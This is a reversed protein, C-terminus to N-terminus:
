HETNGSAKRRARSAAVLLGIFGIVLLIAAGTWLERTSLLEATEDIIDQGDPNDSNIELVVGNAAVAAIDTRGLQFPKEIVPTRAAISHFVVGNQGATRAVELLAVGNLGTIDLLPRDASALVLRTDEVRVKAHEQKVAVDFALFAASPQLANGKAVVQFRAHSPMVGVSEAVRILTPLSAGPADLYHAPVAVEAGAIFQPHMGSFSAEPDAKKLVIHSSPLVNVPYAEPTEKCQDSFMQRVFSVRLTNSPALAYRPIGAIIRQRKGDTSLQASALLVGNLMVSAIPPTRGPSPTAALDFVLEAPRKGGSAVQALSFNVAWEGRALVDFSGLNAGLAAFTMKEREGSIDNVVSVIGSATHGLRRWFDGFLAAAKEGADPAIAIVPKGLLYDLRVEKPQMARENAQLATKKWDMFAALLEPNGTRGLEEALADFGGRIANLLAPDAVVLDAAYPGRQGLALLAGVEAQSGLKRTGGSAIAAFAPVSMLSAPVSVQGLDISQGVAPLTVIRVRRNARELAVGIRWASDYSGPSIGKGAVLLVPAGPLAGWATKVDKVAKSDFRYSFFTAPEIRLINGPTRTDACASEAAVATTWKLGLRLFGSERPGADVGIVSGADGKDEVATRSSVPYGDISVVMSTRGGDSRMYNAALKITGDAIPVGAPVPLYLDRQNDPSGLVVPGALGLDKLTIERRIWPDGALNRFFGAATDGQTMAQAQAQASAPPLTFAAVAILCALTTAIRPAHITNRLNELMPM